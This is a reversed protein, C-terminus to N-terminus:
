PTRTTTASTTNRNTTENTNPTRSKRHDITVIATVSSRM